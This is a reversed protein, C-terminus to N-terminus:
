ICSVQRRSPTSVGNGQLLQDPAREATATAMSLTAEQLLQSLQPPQALLLLRRPLQSLASRRSHMLHGLFDDRRGAAASLLRRDPQHRTLQRHHCVVRPTAPIIRFTCALRLHVAFSDTARHSM